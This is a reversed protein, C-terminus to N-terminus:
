EDKGVRARSTGARGGARGGGQQGGGMCSASLNVEQQEDASLALRSERLPVLCVRRLHFRDILRNTNPITDDNSMSLRNEWVNTEVRGKLTAFTFLCRLRHDSLDTLALADRKAAQHSAHFLCFRTHSFIM